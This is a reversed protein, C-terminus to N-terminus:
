NGADPKGGFLELQRARRWPRRECPRPESTGAFTGDPRWYLRSGAPGVRRAGCICEGETMIKGIATACVNRDSWKHAKM